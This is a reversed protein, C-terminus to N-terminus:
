LCRPGPSFAGSSAGGRKVPRPPRIGPPRRGGRAARGCGGGSGAALSGGAPTVTSAAFGAGCGCGATSAVAVGATAGAGLSGGAGLGSTSTCGAAIVAVAGLSGGGQRRASACFQVPTRPATIVTAPTPKKRTYAAKLSPG